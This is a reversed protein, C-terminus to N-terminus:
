MFISLMKELHFFGFHSLPLGFGVSRASRKGLGALNFPQHVTQIELLRKIIQVLRM